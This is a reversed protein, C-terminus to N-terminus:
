KILMLKLRALDIIDIKGNKDIDSALFELIKISDDKEM